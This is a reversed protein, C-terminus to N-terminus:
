RATTNSTVWNADYVQGGAPAAAYNVLGLARVQQPWDEAKEQMEQLERLPNRAKM